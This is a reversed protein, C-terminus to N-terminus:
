GTGDAGKGGFLTACFCHCFLVCYIPLGVWVCRVLLLNGERFALNCTEKHPHYAQRDGWDLPGWALPCTSPQLSFRQYQYKVDPLYLTYRRGSACPLAFVYFCPFPTSSRPPHPPALPPATLHKAPHSPPKNAHRHCHSFIPPFPSPHTPSHTLLYNVAQLCSPPSISSSIYVHPM